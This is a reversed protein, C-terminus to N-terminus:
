PVMVSFHQKQFPQGNMYYLLHNPAIEHQWILTPVGGTTGKGFFFEIILGPCQLDLRHGISQKRHGDILGDGRGVETAKWIGTLIQFALTARHIISSPADVQTIDAETQFCILDGSSAGEVMVRRAQSPWAEWGMPRNQLQGIVRALFFTQMSTSTM